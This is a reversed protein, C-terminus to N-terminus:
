LNGINKGCPLPDFVAKARLYLPKFREPDAPGVCVPVVGGTQYYPPLYPLIFGAGGEPDTTGYVIRGIGHLLMSGFCMVCPELTTYCTIAHSKKWYKPPIKRMAEMEAHKGPHYNPVLLANGAVAIVENELVMVCGIPLNGVAEAAIAQEYALDLFFFDNPSLRTSSM